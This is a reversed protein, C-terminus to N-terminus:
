HEAKPEAHKSRDTVVFTEWGDYEVGHTEAAVVLIPTLTRFASLDVSTERSLVVGSPGKLWHDLSLGQAKLDAVLPDLAKRSGYFWFDTKRVAHGDDGSKQLNAIVERDGNLQVEVSTPTIIRVLDQRNEAESASCSFGPVDITKLVPAMDLPERHVLVMRRQGQGTVSAVHLAGAAVLTPQRDFSEEVPYLLDTGKPIGHDMMNQPDARCSLVTMRGSSVLAQIQADGTRAMVILPMGDPASRDYLFWRDQSGSVSMDAQATMPHSVSWLGLAASVLKKLM